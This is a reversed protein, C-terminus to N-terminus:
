EADTVILEEELIERVSSWPLTDFREGRFGLRELL